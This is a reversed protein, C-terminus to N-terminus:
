HDKGVSDPPRSGTSLSPLSHARKPATGNQAPQQRYSAPGDYIFGGRMENPAKGIFPLWRVCYKWSARTELVDRYEISEFFWFYSQLGEIQARVEDEKEIYISEVQALLIGGNPPIVAGPDLRRIIFYIPDPPLHLTFQNGILLRYPFAPTRGFNKFWVHIDFHRPLVGDSIIEGTNHDRIQIMDLRVIPMETNVVTTAHLMAARASAQAAEAVRKTLDLSAAMSEAQERMVREQAESAAHLQRMAEAQSAAATANDRATDLLDQMDAAQIGAYRRLGHTARWLYLTFVALAVASLAGIARDNHEAFNAACVSVLRSRLYFRTFWAVDGTDREHLAEYTDGNKNAHVCGKFPESPKIIIIIILFGIAWLTTWAFWRRSRRLWKPSAPTTAKSM